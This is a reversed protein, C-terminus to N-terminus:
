VLGRCNSVFSYCLAEPLQPSLVQFKEPLFPFFVLGLIISGAFKRYFHLMPYLNYGQIENNWGM